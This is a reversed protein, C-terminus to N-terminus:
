VNDGGESLSTNESCSALNQTAKLSDKVFLIPYKIQFNKNEQTQTSVSSVM